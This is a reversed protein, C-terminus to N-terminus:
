GRTKSSTEDLVSVGDHIHLRPSDSRYFCHCPACYCCQMAHNPPLGCSHGGHPCPQACTLPAPPQPPEPVTVDGGIDKDRTSKRRKPKPWYEGGFVGALDRQEEAWERCRAQEPCRSCVAIARHVAEADPRCATAAADFLDLRDRCAACPLAPANELIECALSLLGPERDRAQVGISV